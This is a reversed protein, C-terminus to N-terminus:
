IKQLLFRKWEQKSLRGNLRLLSKNDYILEENHFAIKMKKVIDDLDNPNAKSLTHAWAVEHSVVIPVNHSVMDATIVSYTESLSVNMGIDMTKLLEIFKHHSMWSHEVLECNINNAFLDRINKLVEIGRNEVRNHNIHFELHLKL